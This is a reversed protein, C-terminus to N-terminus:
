ERQQQYTKTPSPIFVGLVTGLLGIYTSQDSCDHKTALQYFCFFVVSILITYVSFFVLEEKDLKLCCCNWIPHVNPNNDM